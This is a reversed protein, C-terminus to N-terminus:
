ADPAQKKDRLWRLLRKRMAPGLRAVEADYRVEGSTADHTIFLVRRVFFNYGDYAVLWRQSM